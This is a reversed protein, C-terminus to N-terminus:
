WEPIVPVPLRRDLGRLLVFVPIVAVLNYLATPMIWTVEATALGAAGGAVFQLVSGYILTGLVIAVAAFLLTNGHLYSHGLDALFAVLLLALLHAGLPGRSVLDLLLGGVIAWSVAEGRGRVVAWCVVCCLLLQPRAGGVELSPALSTQLVTLLILAPFSIWSTM